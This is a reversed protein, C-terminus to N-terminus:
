LKHVYIPPDAEVHMFTHTAGIDLGIEVDVLEGTNKRYSYTTPFTVVTPFMTECPAIQAIGFLKSTSPTHLTNVPFNANGSLWNVEFLIQVEPFLCDYMDMMKEVQRVLHKYTWWGEKNNGIDLLEVGPPRKITEKGETGRGVQGARWENLKNLYGASSPVSFEFDDSVFASM